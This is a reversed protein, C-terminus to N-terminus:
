GGRGSRGGRSSSPSRKLAEEAKAAQAETLVAKAKDAYETNLRTLASQAAALPRALDKDFVRRGRSLVYDMLPALATDARLAYEQSLTGLTALQEAGLDLTDKLAAVAAVPDRKLRGVAARRQQMTLPAEDVPERLGLGRAIPNPVPGGFTYVVGLRLQAPGFRRRLSGFNSPEGFLQNVRYIFRNSAPDFGTVYLLTPNVNTSLNSQGLPTNELGLARVLVGNSNSINFTVQLRDSYSWSQPPTFSASVDFRVQWPTRCSNAGVITGFQRRLCDRAFPRAQSLLDELQQGLEADTTTAPDPVFARDNNSRGDGNIDGSVMPTVPIGSYLNTTFGFNLGWFRGSSTLRFSHTAGSNTVWETGFPDGATGTRSSSRVLNRGVNLAYRLSFSVRRNFLPQPPALTASFQTQWSRLDSVTSTVAAFDPSLRSAGSSISGSSPVIADKPAFVPRDGEGTLHFRPTTNLNLDISSEQNTNWSGQTSLGMIWDGPVRIGEVRLEGRWSTPAEFAPDFVRVVPRALSFTTGTSGDACATPGETMIAWNPIPVADGVCSLTVRTGPLGTAEVLQAIDNSSVFGRYAGVTGTVRIGPLTSSRQMSVLSRVLDPSMQSIAAASLGGLTSAGGSTGGGRRTRSTWSFGLRPSWGIDSPVRDTRVGFSQEVAHNYRPTTGPTAFDMRLGGQLELAPSVRWEDGVWLSTTRDRTNRPVSALVREYSAPRNALLDATTLYTYEGLLPNGPFYFQENGNFRLRGGVKVRHEGKGPIWSIEDILEGSWTDEFYDGNGGGFSLNSFGTRGDSFATGVRVSGGPLRTFPNAEDSYLNFGATMEHLLGKFYGSARLGFSHSTVSLENVSTPFGLESNGDGGVSTTFRGTHSLRISTTASPSFDFVSSTRINRSTSGSPGNGLSMPIGLDSLAGTVLAVSDLSVGRQSLLEARPELLSFWESANDDISWSLAYRLKQRIIPGNATGSHNIPRSIPRNWAPDHWAMGRNSGSFRLTAAFIDTGGRLRQTINGGAFGGRAPDASSTVVSVSALADPPLDGGRVTVGDLTSINQTAAAGLVSFTSDDFSEIGPISLLLDMLRSPDALFLSDALAGAGVEGIARREEEDGSTVVVRELLQTARDLRIDAALIPSLGTRSLRISRSVFGVRRISLLYEGEANPFLLTFTGAADSRAAQTDRTLLGTVRVEAGELPLSDPGTVKGRIIETTSQAATPVALCLGLLVQVCLRRM